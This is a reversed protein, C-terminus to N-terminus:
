MLRCGWDNEVSEDSNTLGSIFDFVVQKSSVDHASTRAVGATAAAGNAGGTATSHYSPVDNWGGDLSIKRNDFHVLLLELQLQKDTLSHWNKVLPFRIVAAENADTGGGTDASPSSMVDNKRTKKLPRGSPSDSPSDNRRRKRGSAVNDSLQGSSNANSKNKKGNSSQTKIQNQIWQRMASKTFPLNRCTLENEVVMEVASELLEEHEERILENLKQYKEDFSSPIDVVERKLLESCLHDDDMEELQEEVTMFTLGHDFGNGSRGTSDKLLAAVLRDEYQARSSCANVGHIAERYHLLQEQLQNNTYQTVFTEHGNGGGLVFLNARSMLRKVLNLRAVLQERAMNTM